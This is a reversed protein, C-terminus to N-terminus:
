TCVCVLTHRRVRARACACVGEEELESDDDSVGNHGMTVSGPAQSPDEGEGQEPAVSVVAHEQLAGAAPPM